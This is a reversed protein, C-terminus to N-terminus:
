AVGVTGDLAPREVGGDHLLEALTKGRELPHFMVIYCDSPHAEAGCAPCRFWGIRVPVAEVTRHCRLTWRGEFGDPWETLVAGAEPPPITEDRM